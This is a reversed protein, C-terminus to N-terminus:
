RVTAFLLLFVLYFSFLFFLFINLVIYLEDIITALTIINM